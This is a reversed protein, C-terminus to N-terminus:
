SQIPEGQPSVVFWNGGVGQGKTDGPASDSSFHYLPHGNYTVQTGGDTRSTTGLKSAEVGLGGTPAGTVILPPWTQACGGTCASTNPTDNMFLYLTRGEADILIQGLPSTAVNVTTARPSSDPTPAQTSQTPAPTNPQTTPESDGGCATFALVAVFGVLTLRKM